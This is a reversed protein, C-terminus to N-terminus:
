RTGEWAGHSLGEGGALLPRCLQAPTRPIPKETLKSAALIGPDQSSWVLCPGVDFDCCTCGAHILKTDVAFAMPEPPTPM